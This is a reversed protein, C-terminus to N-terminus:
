SGYRNDSGGVSESGRKRKDDSHKGAVEVSSASLPGSHKERARRALSEFVLRGLVRIGRAAKDCGRFLRYEDGGERPTETRFGKDRSVSEAANATRYRACSTNRRSHRLHLLRRRRGSVIISDSATCSSADAIRHRLLLPRRQVDRMKKRRRETRRVPRIDVNDQKVPEAAVGV